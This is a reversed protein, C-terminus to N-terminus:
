SCYDELINRLESDSYIKIGNSLLKQDFEPLEKTMIHTMKVPESNNQSFVAVRGNYEKIEYTNDTTKEIEYNNNSNNSNEINNVTILDDSEDIINETYNNNFIYILGSIIILVIISLIFIIKKMIYRREFFNIINLKESFQGSIRFVTYKTDLYKNM